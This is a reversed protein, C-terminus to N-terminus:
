VSAGEGIQRDVLPVISSDVQSEVEESRKLEGSPSKVAEHQQNPLSQKWTRGSVIDYITSQSVGYQSALERVKSARQHGKEGATESRIQTVQGCTLKATHVQEGHAMLGMGTAHAVNEQKTAWDLNMVSNDMKNGSLHNVQPKGQPNPIFAV